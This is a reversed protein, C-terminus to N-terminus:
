KNEGTAGAPPKRPQRTSRLFTDTAWRVDCARTLGWVEAVVSHLGWAGGPSLFFGWVSRDPIRIGITQWTLLNRSGSVHIDFKAPPPNSGGIGLTHVQHVLWQGM